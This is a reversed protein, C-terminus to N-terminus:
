GEGGATGSKSSEFRPTKPGADVPVDIKITGAKAFTFTMPYTLGPTVNKRLGTIEVRIPKAEPDAGNADASPNSQVGPGAAVLESLPKITAKDAPTVHIDGLDTSIGTLQDPKDASSNIANFALAAKGGKSNTYEQTAPYLIRVDRLAIQGQTAYNGNVAAVQQATQSIQGAGCGSLALAAGVAIAAVTVRRAGVATRANM